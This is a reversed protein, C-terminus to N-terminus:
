RISVAPRRAAADSGAFLYNKRGVAVPGLEHEYENKVLPLRGDELFEATGSISQDHVDARASTGVETAGRRIDVVWRMLEHHDTQVRRPPAQRQSRIELQQETATREVACLKAIKDLAIADRHDGAQAV